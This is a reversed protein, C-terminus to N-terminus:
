ARWRKLTNNESNNCFQHTTIKAIIIFSGLGKICEWTTDLNM